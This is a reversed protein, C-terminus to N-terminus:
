DESILIIGDKFGGLKKKKERRVKEVEERSVGHIIVRAYISEILDGAEKAIEEQNGSAIAGTLEALEEEHKLWLMEDQEEPSSTTRLRTGEKTPMKAYGDRVLKESM